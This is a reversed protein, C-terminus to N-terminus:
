ILNLEKGYTAVDKYCRDVEIVKSLYEKAKETDKLFYYTAGVYYVYELAEGKLEEYEYTFKDFCEKAKEYEKIEFYAKGLTYLRAREYETDKNYEISSLYKIAKEYEEIHFYCRGLVYVLSPDEMKEAGGQILYRLANTYDGEDFLVCGLFFYAERNKENYVIANNLLSKVKNSVGQSYFRLALNFNFASLNNADTKFRYFLIAGLLTVLFALKTDYFLLFIGIIIIYISWTGRIKQPMLKYTNSEM